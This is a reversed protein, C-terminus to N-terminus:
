RKPLATRSEADVATPEAHTLRVRTFFGDSSIEPQSPQRRGSGIDSIDRTIGQVLADHQSRKRDHGKRM